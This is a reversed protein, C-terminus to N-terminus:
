TNLACRMAPSRAHDRKLGTAHLQQPGAFRLAQREGPAPYVAEDADIILLRRIEIARQDFCALRQDRQASAQATWDRGDKGLVKAARHLGNTVQDLVTVPLDGESSRQALQVHAFAVLSILSRETLCADLGVRRQEERHAASQHQLTSGGTSLDYGKSHREGREHSTGVETGHTDHAFYARGAVTNGFVHRYHTEVIDLSSAVHIWGQGGDPLAETREGLGRRVHQEVGDYVALRQGRGYANRGRENRSFGASADTRCGPCD